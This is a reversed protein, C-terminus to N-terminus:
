FHEVIAIIIYLDLEHVASVLIYAKAESMGLFYVKRLVYILLCASM